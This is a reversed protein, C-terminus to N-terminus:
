FLLGMLTSFITDYVAKHDRYHDVASDLGSKGKVLLDRFLERHTPNCSAAPALNLSRAYLEWEPLRAPPSRKEFLQSPEFFEVVYNIEISFSSVAAGGWGSVNVYLYPEDLMQSEFEKLSAYTTQSNERPLWWCYGGTNAGGKYLDKQPTMVAIDAPVAFPSLPRPVRAAYITGGNSIEPSTNSALVSMAVLRGGQATSLAETIVTNGLDNLAATTLQLPANANTTIKFDVHHGKNSGSFGFAIHDFAWSGIELTTSNGDFIQFVSRATWAVDATLATYFTLNAKAETKSGETTILLSVGNASGGVSHLTLGYYSTGGHVLPVLQCLLNNGNLDNAEVTSSVIVNSADCNMQGNLVLSGPGATPLATAAGSWCIPVKLSPFACITFGSACGPDSSTVNIRKTFKRVCRAQSAYDPIMIPEGISGPDMIQKTAKQCMRDYTDNVGSGLAKRSLGQRPPRSIDDSKIKKKQSRKSEPRVGKRQDINM